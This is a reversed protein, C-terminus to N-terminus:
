MEHCSTCFEMTNTYEVYTNFGGWFVIGGLAGLLLLIGVGLTGSPHVSWRWLRRFLNM